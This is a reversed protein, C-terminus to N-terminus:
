HCSCVKNQSREYVLYDMNKFADEKIMEIENSCPVGPNFVWQSDSLHAVKTTRDIDINKKM